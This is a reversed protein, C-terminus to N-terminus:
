KVKSASRAKVSRARRKQEAKKLKAIEAKESLLFNGLYGGFLGGSLSGIGYILLHSWHGSVFSYALMRGVNLGAGSRHLLFLTVAAYVAGMGPGYVNKPTTRELILMYYCFGIFFTGIIEGVLKYVDNTEENAPFGIVTKSQVDFSIRIPISFKILNVAFVAAALQVAMVTLGTQYKTHKSLMLCLTIVSNYQAGSTPRGLWTVVTYIIFVGLAVQSPTIAELHLQILLIGTGFITFFTGLFEVKLKDFLM